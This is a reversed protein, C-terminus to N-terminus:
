KTQAKQLEAVVRAVEDHAAKEARHHQAVAFARGIKNAFTGLPVRVSVFQGTAADPPVFTLIGVRVEDPKTTAFLKTLDLATTPQAQLATRIRELSSTSPSADPQQARVPVVGGLLIAVAALLKRSAALTM